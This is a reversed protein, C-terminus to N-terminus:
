SVQSVSRSQVYHDYVCDPRDVPSGNKVPASGEQEIRSSRARSGSVLIGGRRECLEIGEIRKTVKIRDMALARVFKPNVKITNM